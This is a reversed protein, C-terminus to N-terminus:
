VLFQLLSAFKHVPMEYDATFDNLRVSLYIKDDIRRIAVGTLDDGVNLFGFNPIYKQADNKNIKKGM